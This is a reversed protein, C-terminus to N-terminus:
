EKGGENLAYIEPLNRWVGGVDMGFGFVYRNPLRVGTFDPRLAKPRGTDKDAFVASFVRSAGSAM